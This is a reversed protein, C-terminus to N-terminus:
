PRGKPRQADRAEAEAFFREALDFHYDVNVTDGQPMREMSKLMLIWAAETVNSPTKQKDSSM